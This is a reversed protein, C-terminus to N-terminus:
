DDTPEGRDDYRRGRHWSPDVQRLRARREIPIRIFMWVVYGVFVPVALVAHGTVLALVLATGGILALTSRM